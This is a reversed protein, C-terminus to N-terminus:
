LFSAFHTHAPHEEVSMGMKVNFDGEGYDVEDSGFDIRVRPLPLPHPRDEVSVEASIKRPERVGFRLM